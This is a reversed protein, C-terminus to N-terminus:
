FSVVVGWWLLILGRTLWLYFSSVQLSNNCGSNLQLKSNRLDSFEHLHYLRSDLLQNITQNGKPDLEDDDDDNNNNNNEHRKIATPNTNSSGYYYKNNTSYDHIFINRIVMTVPLQTYDTIGGAWQITGPDNSLDGGAWLSIKLYMPSSPYGDPNLYHTERVLLDNFYWCIKIQNWEIAVKQYQSHLPIHSIHYVGRNHHSVDGKVFYNTQFTQPFSGFSEIIDIEDLDKSQLYMSSIIGTGSASKFEAEVRGYMIQFDSGVIPNDYRKRMVLQIENDIYEVNRSESYDTFDKSSLKLSSLREDKCYKCNDSQKDDKCDKDGNGNCYNNTQNRDNIDQRTQLGYTSIDLFRVNNAYQAEKYNETDNVSSCGEQQFVQPHEVKIIFTGQQVNEQGLIQSIVLKVQLYLLFIRNLRM